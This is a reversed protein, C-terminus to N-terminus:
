ALAVCGGPNKEFESILPHTLIGNQEDNILVDAGSPDSKIIWHERQETPRLSRGFDPWPIKFWPVKFLQDIRQPKNLVINFGVHYPEQLVSLNTNISIGGTNLNTFYRSGRAGILHEIEVYPSKPLTVNYENDTLRTIAVTSSLNRGIAIVLTHQDASDATITSSIVSVKMDSVEAKGFTFSYLPAQPLQTLGIDIAASPSAIPLEISGPVSGALEGDLFVFLRPSSIMGDAISITLITPKLEQAQSLTASGVSVLRSVALGFVLSRFISLM